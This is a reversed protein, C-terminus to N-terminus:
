RQAFAGTPLRRAALAVAVQAVAASGVYLATTSLFPLYWDGLNELWGAFSRSPVSASLWYFSGNSIVYCVSAAVLVSGATLGLERVHLGAYRARLWAGGAWLAAYGPVLFWYAPSVCYHSWFDIGQGTIVFFDILVALAILLPFGWRASGRLYFGAVFFVAWSADPLIDFHHIRTALMVLALIAFIGTRAANPLSSPATNM